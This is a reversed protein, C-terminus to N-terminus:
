TCGLLLELEVECREAVSGHRRQPGGGAVGGTGLRLGSWGGDVGVRAATSRRRCTAGRGSEREGVNEARRSTSSLQAGDIERDVAVSRERETKFRQFILWTRSRKQESTMNAHVM